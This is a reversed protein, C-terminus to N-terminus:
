RYPSAAPAGAGDVWVDEPLSRDRVCTRDHEPYTIRDVPARTGVILCRTPSEGRNVLCHGIPEGARFAAADGARLVTVSDGEDLTVEGELVYVLEDEAAHWHKLSSCAGPGLVEIFAGFQTLGGPESIWFAHKSVAGSSEDERLMRDPTIVTM